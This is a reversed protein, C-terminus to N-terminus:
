GSASDLGCYANVAQMAEILQPIETEDPQRRVTKSLEEVLPALDDPAVPLIEDLLRDAFEEFDPEELVGLYQDMM